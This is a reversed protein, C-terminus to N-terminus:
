PPWRASGLRRWCAATIWRQCLCPVIDAWAPGRRVLRNQQPRSRYTLAADPRRHRRSAVTRRNQQARGRALGRAPFIGGGQVAYVRGTIPCNETALYAVLPSINAPAFLDLGGDAPEAMLDGVGPTALTLRTRAIPAIANVRVGYRGLEAAAVLTLAPIGAKASGYNAQGPNPLAGLRVGDKTDHRNTWGIILGGTVM